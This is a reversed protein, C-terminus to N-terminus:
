QAQALRVGGSQRRVDLLNLQVEALTGPLQMDFAEALGRVVQYDVKGDLAMRVLITIAEEPSKTTKYPRVEILAAFVDCVTLIRTLPSIESGRLRDPYGSGDLAEHHHRVADLVQEDINGLKVLYDYGASPHLKIAEFEDDSLKGPKDLIHLPVAAKGVDHLLAATTLKLATERKGVHLGAFSAVTGTVLLCHQFTGEHHARVSTLWGDAGVTGISAIAEAGIADVAKPEIGEGTSFGSFLGALMRGSALISEGGASKRLAGIRAPDLPERAAISLMKKLQELCSDRKLFLTAGLANAQVEDAHRDAGSPAVVFARVPGAVRVAGLSRRLAQVLAMDRLDLLVVIDKQELVGPALGAIDAAELSLLRALRDAVSRTAQDYVVLPSLAPASARATGAPLLSM